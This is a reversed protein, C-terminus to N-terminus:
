RAGEEGHISGHKVVYANTAEPSLWDVFGKDFAEGALEHDNWLELALYRHLGDLSQKRAAHRSYAGALHFAELPPIQPAVRRIWAIWTADDDYLRAGIQGQMGTWRLVAGWVPLVLAADDPAAALADWRKRASRPEDHGSAQAIRVINRITRDAPVRGAFRPDSALLREIGAATFGIRARAEIEARIDPDTHIGRKTQRVQGRIPREM